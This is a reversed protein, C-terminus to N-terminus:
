RYVVLAEANAGHAQAVEADVKGFDFLRWKIAGGGTAQQAGSTFLKSGSISDFGLAGSLSIKPYYDAIAVGIRENSAALHREAAIIDPRRRLVDTAEQNGIGPVSPIATVIDLEHAYAGPQAGSVVDLRNLQKELSLRLLPVTSRAQQLLAEAQAIERKTAAGAAVRN